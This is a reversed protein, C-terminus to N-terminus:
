ESAYKLQRNTNCFMQIKIRVNTKTWKLMLAYLDVLTLSAPLGCTFCTMTLFSSTEWLASSGLPDARQLILCFIFTQFLYQWRENSFYWATLISKQAHPFFCSQKLQLTNWFCTKFLDDKKARPSQTISLLWAKRTQLNQRILHVQLLWNNMLGTLCEVAACILLVSFSGLDLSLCLPQHQHCTLEDVCYIFFLLLHLCMLYICPEWM